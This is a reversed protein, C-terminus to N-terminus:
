ASLGAVGANTSGHFEAHLADAYFGHLVRDAEAEPLLARVLREMLPDYLRM